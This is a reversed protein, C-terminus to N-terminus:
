HRFWSVVEGAEDIASLRDIIRSTQQACFALEAFLRAAEQAPHTEAPTIGAPQYTIRHAGARLRRLSAILPRLARAAEGPRRAKTALEAREILRGCLAEFEWLTLRSIQVMELRNEIAITRDDTM